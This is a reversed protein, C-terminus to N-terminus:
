DAGQWPGCEDTFNSFLCFWECSRWPHPGRQHEQVRQLCLVPLGETALRGAVRAVRGEPGDQTFSDQEGHGEQWMDVNDMRGDKVAGRQTSNLITCCM